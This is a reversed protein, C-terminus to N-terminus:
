DQGVLPGKQAYVRDIAAWGNQDAKHLWAKVGYICLAALLVLGLSKFFRKLNLCKKPRGDKTWGWTLVGRALVIM